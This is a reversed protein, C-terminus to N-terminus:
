ELLDDAIVFAALQSDTPGKKPGTYLEKIRLEHRM